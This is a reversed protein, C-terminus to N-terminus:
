IKWQDNKCVLGLNECTKSQRAVGWYSFFKPLTRTQKSWYYYYASYRGIRGFTGILCKLWCLTRTGWRSFVDCKKAMERWGEFSSFVLEEYEAMSHELTKPVQPCTSVDIHLDPFIPHSGLSLLFLGPGKELLHGGAAFHVYNHSHSIDREGLLTLGLRLLGPLSPWACM